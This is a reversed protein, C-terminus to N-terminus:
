YIKWGHTGGESFQFGMVNGGLKRLANEVMRKKTPEVVFMIFGGGGAGSVKGAIAGSAMAVDFAEQIMDNSICKAMKKKNEWAEGLISAFANIDGKLLATKTDIASQKIKHMAQIALENNNTTNKKQEDIIQASSRSAGTYYLVMSSELEDIIWRKIRLPNVIVHNDKLFEMFNFGGFAAAYQDQKGGSLGLDIREIEYALHAIEYDGMPLNLWEVFAKLICVVMTSSSGLGSGAPADSYTTIRFSLPKPIEFDKLIRNYVGKHLDLMGNIPLEKSAAYTVNQDLDTAVIEIQSNTTEEITCYAYMNITANLILGGYIDSYPSVDSGGGALGLRLPAKSRIIM